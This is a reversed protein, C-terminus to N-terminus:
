PTVMPTAQAVHWNTVQGFEDIYRARFWYWAGEVLDAITETTTNGAISATFKYRSHVEVRGKSLFPGAIQFEVFDSAEGVGDLTVELDCEGPNTIGTIATFAAITAPVEDVPPNDQKATWDDIRIAVYNLHIYANIGSMIFTGGFGDPQPNNIAFTRWNERQVDTLDGWERSLIGMLSRNRAQQGRVREAPTGKKRVQPGGPGRGFVFGAVTGKAEVSMLPNLVRAM